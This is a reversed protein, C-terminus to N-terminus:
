EGTWAPRRKEAFAITGERADASRFVAATEEPTGWRRERILKKTTALALPANAAIRAALGTAADLVEGAPVVANVLGLEMARRAPITDGTLGLELAAALPIRDALTTGGGGAYLGRKVEPLGILADEAAVMLDCAIALELGGGVAPGNLAAITPKSIGEQYFWTLSGFDGGAAYARLDMGACFAPGAGTLIVVRAGPDSEAQRLAGSLAALLGADLANRVEPRNLTLVVVSGDPGSRSTLLSESM